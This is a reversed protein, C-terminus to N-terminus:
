CRRLSGTASTDFGRPQLIRGLEPGIEVLKILDEHRLGGRVRQTRTPRVRLVPRRPDAPLQATRRLGRRYSPFVALRRLVEVTSGPTPTRTCSRRARLVVVASVRRMETTLLRCTQSDCRPRGLYEASDKGRARACLCGSLRTRGRAYGARRPARVTGARYPRCDRRRIRLSSIKTPSWSGVPRARTHPSRRGTTRSSRGCTSSRWASGTANPRSRPSCRDICWRAGRSSSSM